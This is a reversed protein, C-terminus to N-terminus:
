LLQLSGAGLEKKPRYMSKFIFDLKGWIYPFESHLLQLTMYSFALFPKRIYSSIPLYKGMYSSATLWIHSQLQEVRFKRIYSSFKRKKKILTCYTIRLKWSSPFQMCGGGGWGSLALTPRHWYETSSLTRHDWRILVVKDTRWQVPSAFILPSCNRVVPVSKYRFVASYNPAKMYCSCYEM